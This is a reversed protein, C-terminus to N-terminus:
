DTTVRRKKEVPQLWVIAIEGKSAQGIICLQLFNGGKGRGGFFGVRGHKARVEGHRV